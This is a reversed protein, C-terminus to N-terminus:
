RLAVLDVRPRLQCKLLNGGRRCCVAYGSSGNAWLPSTAAPGPTEKTTSGTNYGTPTCPRPPAGTWGAHPVDGPTAPLRSPSGVFCHPLRLVPFEGWDMRGAPPAFRGPSPRSCTTSGKCPKCSAERDLAASISALPFLAASGIYLSPDDRSSMRQRLPRRTPSSGVPQWIRLHERRWQTENPAESDDAEHANLTSPTLDRDRLSRARGCLPDCGTPAGPWAAVPSQRRKM